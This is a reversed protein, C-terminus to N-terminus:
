ASGKDVHRKGPSIVTINLNESKLRLAYGGKPRVGKIPTYDVDSGHVGSYFGVDEVEITEGTISTVHAFRIVDQSIKDRIIRLIYDETIEREFDAGGSQAGAPPLYGLETILATRVSKAAASLETPPWVHVEVDVNIEAVKGFAVVPSSGIMSLKTITADLTTLIETRRTPDDDYLVTEDRPLVWIRPYSWVLGDTHATLVDGSSRAVRAYDNTSVARRQSRAFKVTQQRISDLSEVAVGGRSEEPNIVTVARVVDVNGNDFSGAWQDLAGAPVKNGVAGSCERYTLYVQGGAAPIAGSNGDGFMVLSNGVSDTIVAFVNESPGHDLINFTPVWNTNGFPTRLELSLSPLRGDVFKGTNLPITMRQNGVGTSTGLNETRTTGEWARIIRAMGLALVFEDEQLEFRLGTAADYVASNAPITVTSPLDSSGAYSVRINVESSQAMGPQYGFLMAHALINSPSNSSLINSEQAAIDNYYSLMDGMYAMAEVLVLAFDSSDPSWAPIRGQVYGILQERLAAYDRGTYDFPQQIDTM